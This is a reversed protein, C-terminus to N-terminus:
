HQKVTSGFAADVAIEKGDEARRPKKLPPLHCSLSILSIFWGIGEEEQQSFPSASATLHSVTLTRTKLPVLQSWENSCLSKQLFRPQLGRSEELLLAQILIEGTGLQLHRGM